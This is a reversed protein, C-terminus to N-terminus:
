DSLLEEPSSDIHYDLIEVNGFTVKKSIDKSDEPFESKLIPKPPPPSNEIGIDALKEETKASLHGFLSRREPPDDSPESPGLIVDALSRGNRMEIAVLVVLIVMILGILIPVAVNQQMKNIFLNYM